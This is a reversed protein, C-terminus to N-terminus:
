GAVQRWEEVAQRCSECRALHQELAAAKSRSVTGAIYYPILDLWQNHM